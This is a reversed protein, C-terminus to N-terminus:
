GCIGDLCMQGALCAVRCTGCNDRSTKLNACYGPRGGSPPCWFPRAPPCDDNSGTGGPLVCVGGRCVTDGQFDPCCDASTSCSQGRERFCCVQGGGHSGSDYSGCCCFAGDPKYDGPGICTENVNCCPLGDSPSIGCASAHACCQGVEGGANLCCAEDPYCATTSTTGCTTPTQGCRTCELDSGPPLCTGLQPDGYYVCNRCCFGREPPGEDSDFAPCDADDRCPCDYGDCAAPCSDSTESAFCFDLGNPGPCCRGLGFRQPCEAEFRCAPDPDPEPGPDPGPDPGPGPGPAPPPKKKGKGKGKGKGKRKADTESMTLLPVPAGFMAGVLMRVAARRSNTALLATLRDFNGNEM